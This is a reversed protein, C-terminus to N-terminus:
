CLIQVLENNVSDIGMYSYYRNKKLFLRLCDTLYFIKRDLFFYIKYLFFFSNTPNKEKKLGEPIVDNNWRNFAM